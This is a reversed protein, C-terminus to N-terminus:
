KQFRNTRYSAFSGRKSANTSKAIKTSSPVPNLIGADIRKLNRNSWM